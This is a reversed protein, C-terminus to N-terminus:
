VGPCRVSHMLHEEAVVGAKGQLKWCRDSGVMYPGGVISLLEGGHGRISQYLVINGIDFEDPTLELRRVDLLVDHGILDRFSAFEADSVELTVKAVEDLSATVLGVVRARFPANM